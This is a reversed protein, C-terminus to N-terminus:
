KNEETTQCDTKQKHCLWSKPVIKSFQNFSYYVRRKPNGVYRRNILSRVNHESQKYYDALEEVTAWLISRELLMDLWSRVEELSMQGSKARSATFELLTALENVENQM